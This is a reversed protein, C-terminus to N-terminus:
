KVKRYLRQFVERYKAEHAARQQCRRIFRDREYWGHAPEDSPFPAIREAIKRARICLAVLEAQSERSM